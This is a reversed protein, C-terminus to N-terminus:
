ENIFRLNFGPEKLLNKFESDGTILIANKEITLIATFSDAYSLLNKAKFAAAALCSDLNPDVIEIPMQFLDILAGEAFKSNSKRCMMYYVEGVHIASMHGVAKYRAIDLLCNKVYENGPEQRFYTIMAFSDFVYHIM